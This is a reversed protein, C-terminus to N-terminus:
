GEELCYGGKVGWSDSNERMRKALSLMRGAFVCALNIRDTREEEPALFSDEVVTKLTLGAHFLLIKFSDRLKSPDQEGFSVSLRQITQTVIENKPLLSLNLLESKFMQFDLENVPLVAWYEYSPVVVGRALYETLNISYDSVSPYNASPSVGVLQALLVWIAHSDQDKERPGFGLAITNGLFLRQLDADVKGTEDGGSAGCTAM